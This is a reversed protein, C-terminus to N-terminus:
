DTEDVLAVLDGHRAIPRGHIRYIGDGALPWRLVAEVQGDGVDSEEVTPHVTLKAENGGPTLLGSLPRAVLVYNRTPGRDRREWQVVERATARLSLTPEDRLVVEEVGAREVASAAVALPGASRGADHELLRAAGASAAPVAVLGKFTGAATIAALVDSNAVIRQGTVAGLTILDSATDPDQAAVCRLLADLPVLGSTLTDQVQWEDHVPDPWSVRGSREAVADALALVAPALEGSRAPPRPLTALCRVVGGDAEDLDDGSAVRETVRGIAALATGVDPHSPHVTAIGSLYPDDGAALAEVLDGRVVDRELLRLPADAAAVDGEEGTLTTASALFAGPDARLLAMRVDGPLDDAREALVATVTPSKDRALVALLRPDDVDRAHAARGAVPMRRLATPTPQGPRAM